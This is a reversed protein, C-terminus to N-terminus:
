IVAKSKSIKLNCKPKVRTMLHGYYDFFDFSWYEEMIYEGNKDYLHCYFAYSTKRQIYYVEERSTTKFLYYGGEVFKQSSVSAQTKM